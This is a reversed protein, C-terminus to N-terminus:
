REGAASERKNVALWWRWLWRSCLSKGNCVFIGQKVDIIQIQV